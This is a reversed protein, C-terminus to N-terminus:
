LKICKRLNHITANLLPYRIADTNTQAIPVFVSNWQLLGLGFKSKIVEWQRKIDVDLEPHIRMKENYIDYQPRYNELAYFNLKNQLLLFSAPTTSMEEISRHRWEKHEQDFIEPRQTTYAGIATIGSKEFIATMVVPLICLISLGKKRESLLTCLFSIDIGGNKPMFAGSMYSLVIKERLVGMSFFISNSGVREQKPIYCDQPSAMERYFEFFNTSFKIRYDLKCEELSNNVV